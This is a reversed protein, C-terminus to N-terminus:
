PVGALKGGKVKSNLEKIQEFIGKLPRTNYEIQTLQLLQNKFVKQNERHIKLAEAVNIRMANIQGELAGATKETIGKIDGKLGQANEASEGFLEKYQELAAMYQQMATTGMAKIKDREEDTLGDFSGSVTNAAIQQQLIKIKELLSDKIKNLDYAQTSSANQLKENIEKIQDEYSKLLSAQQATAGAQGGFGMSSYLADVMNQVAPELIKIRLANAVANRMVQDVVKDFSSAADEGKSFADILADSIKESLEKFDTTTVSKQFNDILEQIQINIDNIQQTYSAIKDQDAKKKDSEKSRMQQLIRQQEKLNAILERQMSLQSEGATKEIVRQLEEYSNKLEDVARKWARISKEKRGDGATSLMKVIGVVMQAIGGVMQQINGSFYGVLANVLGELTQTLDKAFKEFPGGKGDLSLAEALEKASNVALDTYFKTEQIHQNLRNFDEQTATGERIKKRLEKFSSILKQIPGSDKSLDKLKELKERFKEIEQAPAGLNILDNIKSELEPIFKSIEKKTLADINGFVKEFMDSKELVSVFADRYEKAEAKGAADLLKLRETDTIKKNNGIQARIDNYKQAIRVQKQEFTEQEKLFDQYVNKQEQIKEQLKSDAAAYFGQSTGNEDQSDRLKQLYEIQDYLSPMNQLVKDMSDKFNSLPDKEGTLTSLIDKLKQWQTIESDTLKVGQTRKINLEEFRKSIDNYYSGKLEPFQEDAIQDGYNKAIQYKAKWQRETEAIQEDFNKYQRRKIEENIQDIRKGAEETSVIEGTLYPNGKKDKDNGYKDLKRLKVVGNVATDIAEQILSARRQLEKVSGFPLIEALQREKAKPPDLLDQLKKIKAQIRFFAKQTPASDAEAELAEIQDKIRKAWGAKGAKTEETIETESINVGRKALDDLKKQIEKKEETMDKVAKDVRQKKRDKLNWAFDSDFDTFDDWVDGVGFKDRNTKLSDIDADLRGLENVYRKAEAELKLMEIYDKIMKTAKGTKVAEADLQDLRGNTITKIQKIASTRKEESTTQDQIVKILSKIKAEQETISPIQSKRDEDMRKQSEQAVTLASAYKYVAYTLAAILAAALAYPNAFLTASLFSLAKATATTAAAQALQAATLRQTAIANADKAAANALQEATNVATAASSLATATTELEKQTTYFQTGASLAAKRAIEASEQAAIVANQAKEVNKTAVLVERATGNATVARLESQALALQVRANGLAQAKEIGLAVAKQKKIALTSIEAQLTAYKTSLSAREAQAELLTAATQRQTVLARGLKMRQSFSLLGIETELTKNVLSQAAATVIIAAKYTGYSIVITKIIEFLEQYHEVLDTLGAIGSYILGENSQGIKNLMQDWADGLNAIKGSVSASQKEMLNFFMGGENTLNYLVEQVDKFGIKGASVMDQIEGTTKGFKKALEAVMPIGAETFQRLDDGMLKGKAKVQGYVLNIRSLPVGLGAAINGMRTLVDVVQNAPVQFALLQKAGDSVEQLSFPTKAALEVMQAMLAKAKDQSRLMTTFAIETKQFEGRVNIMEMAFNKLAGVSFYGAIGVSLNRFASDMQATQSKTVTGLGTLDRKMQAIGNDWDQMNLVANFNLAGGVNNM